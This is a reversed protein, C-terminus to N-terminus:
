RLTINTEVEELNQWCAITSIDHDVVPLDREINSNPLIRAEAKSFTLTGLSFLLSPCGWGPLDFQEPSPRNDHDSKDWGGGLIGISDPTWGLIRFMGFNM